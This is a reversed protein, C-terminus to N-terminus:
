VPGHAQSGAAVGPADVTISPRCAAVLPVRDTMAVHSLTLLVGHVFDQARKDDVRALHAHTSAITHMFGGTLCALQTGNIADYVTWADHTHEVHYM